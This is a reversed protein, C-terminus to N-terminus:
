SELAAAIRQHLEAATIGRVLFRKRPSTAGAILDIQSKRLSLSKSLLAIIAQNAKGREPSQTVCVRLMGDQQARLQNARAGPRARVPLITGEAHPGLEIM